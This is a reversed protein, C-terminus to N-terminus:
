RKEESLGARTLREMTGDRRMQRLVEALKPVLAAHRKHLYIYMDRRELPPALARVGQYGMRRIVEQGLLLDVVVMDARNRDLMAFLAEEDKVRTVSRVDQTKAEVIKWGTILGVSCPKLDEWGQVQLAPNRTFATFVFEDVPEPVMILNPYQAALGSVRAFNGDDIGLNANQLARESSLHVIRLDLGIRRFAEAVIRDEYGTADPRSRPASHATNLVLPQAGSVCPLLALLLCLFGSAVRM